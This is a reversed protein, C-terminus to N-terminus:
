ETYTKSILPRKTWYQMPFDARYKHFRVKETWIERTLEMAILNIQEDNKLIKRNLNPTFTYGHLKHLSIVSDNMSFVEATVKELELDFFLYNYLFPPIFGGFGLREEEGIYFGWSTVLNGYDFDALNILGVPNNQIEIIWHYYHTKSFCSMLWKTQADIDDDMDTNQFRTIRPKRRWNLILRADSINIERFTFPTM